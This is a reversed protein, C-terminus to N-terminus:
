KDKQKKRHGKSLGTQRLRSIKQQMKKLEGKKKPQKRSNVEQRGTSKKKFSELPLFSVSNTHGKKRREQGIDKRDGKRDRRNEKVYQTKNKGGTNRKKEEAGNRLLRPKKQRKQM